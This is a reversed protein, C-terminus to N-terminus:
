ECVSHFQDNSELVIVRNKLQQIENEINQTSNKITALNTNYNSNNNTLKSLEKKTAMIESNLQNILKLHSHQINNLRLNIDTITERNEELEQHINDYILNSRAGGTNTLEYHTNKSFKKLLNGM